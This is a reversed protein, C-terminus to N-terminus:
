QFNRLSIRAKAQQTCSKMGVQRVSVMIVDAIGNSGTLICQTPSLNKALVTTVGNVVRVLNGSANVYYTRTVPDNAVPDYVTENTISDTVKLPFTVTLQNNAATAKRADRIDYALKQVAITAASNAAEDGAGSSWGRLSQVLTTVLGAGIMCMIVMALVTEVLTMGKRGRLM